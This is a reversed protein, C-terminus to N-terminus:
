AYTSWGTPLYGLGGSSFGEVALVAFTILIGITSNYVAGTASVGMVTVPNHMEEHYGILDDATKLLSKVVLLGEKQETSEAFNVPKPTSKRFPSLPGTGYSPPGAMKRACPKKEKGPTGLVEREERFNDAVTQDISFIENKLIMRHESVKGQLAVAASIGKLVCITICFVTFIMYYPTGIFHRAGAWFLGNLVVMAVVSWTFLVGVYAQVRGFYGSGFAKATRRILTWAFTNNPDRLDIYFRLEKEEASLEGQLPRGEIDDYMDATNRSGRPSLPAAEEGDETTYVKGGGREKELKARGKEEKKDIEGQKKVGKWDKKTVFDGLKVGPYVTMKGILKMCMYRRQFDSAAIYGFLFLQGMWMARMIFMSAHITKELHSEGFGWQGKTM